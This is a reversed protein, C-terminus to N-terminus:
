PCGDPLRWRHVTGVRHLDPQGRRVDGSLSSFIQIVPQVGDYLDGLFGTVREINGPLNAAFATAFAEIQPRYKVITEILQTGLKNLQPVLSSGITNGM